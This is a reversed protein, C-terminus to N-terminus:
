LQALVVVVPLGWMNMKHENLIKFGANEITRSVYIPRCDIYQPWRRHSWLYLKMILGHKKAEAMAVVSLRGGPKLARKCESLVVPIEPTDFLELTFSMFIADFFEDDFPLQAADGRVLNIQESLGAAKARAQAAAVMKSSIDVGWVGGTKGAARALDPLGTGTGFGIELVKEGPGVNLSALGAKIYKDEFPAALKDYWGSMRDYAAEAQAKNGAIGAMERM